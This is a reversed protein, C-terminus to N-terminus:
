SFLFNSVVMIIKNFIDGPLETIETYSLTSVRSAVVVQYTLAFMITPLQEGRARAQKEADLFTKGTVKDFNLVVNDIEKNGVKVKRGFEIIKEM